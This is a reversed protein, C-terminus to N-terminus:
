EADPAQVAACWIAHSVTNILTLILSRKSQTEKDIKFLDMILLTEGTKKPASTKLSNQDVFEM